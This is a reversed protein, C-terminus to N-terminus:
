CRRRAIVKFVGTEVRTSPLSASTTYRIQCLGSAGNRVPSLSGSDLLEQQLRVTALRLAMTWRTVKAIHHNATGLKDEGHTAALDVGIATMASDGFLVSLRQEKLPVVGQTAAKKTPTM